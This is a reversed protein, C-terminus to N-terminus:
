AHRDWQTKNVNGFLGKASKLFIKPFFSFKSGWGDLKKEARKRSNLFILLNDLTAPSPAIKAIILLFSQRYLNKFIM